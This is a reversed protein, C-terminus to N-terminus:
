GTSLAFPLSTALPSCSTASCHGRLSSSASSGLCSFDSYDAPLCWRYNVDGLSGAITSPAGCSSGM